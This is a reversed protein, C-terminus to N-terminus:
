PFASCFLTPHTSGSFKPIELKTLTMGIVLMFIREALKVAIEKSIELSRTTILGSLTNLHIVNNFTTYYNTPGGNHWIEQDGTKIRSMNM